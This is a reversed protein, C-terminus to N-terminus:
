VSLIGVTSIDDFDRIRLDSPLEVRRFKSEIELMNQSCVAMVRNFEGLYEKGSGPVLALKSLEQLRSALNAADGVVAFEGRNASGIMGLVVTGASLGFSLKLQDFPPEISDLVKATREAMAATAMVSAHIASAGSLGFIAMLGDGLHKDVIGGSQYIIQHMPEFIKDLVEIM